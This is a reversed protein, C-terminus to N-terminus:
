TFIKHTGTIERLSYHPNCLVYYLDCREVYYNKVCLYIVYNSSVSLGKAKSGNM